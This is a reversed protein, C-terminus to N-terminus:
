NPFVDKHIIKFNTSLEICKNSKLYLNPVRQKAINLADGYLDVSPIKFESM